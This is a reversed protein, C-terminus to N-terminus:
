QLYGQRQITEDKVENSEVKKREPRAYAKAMGSLMAFTKDSLEKQKKTM